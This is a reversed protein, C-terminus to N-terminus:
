LIAGGWPFNKQIMGNEGFIWKVDLEKKGKQLFVM